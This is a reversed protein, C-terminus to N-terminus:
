PIFPKINEEKKLSLIINSISSHMEWHGPQSTYNYLWGSIHTYTTDTLIKSLTLNLPRGDKKYYHLDWHDRKGTETSDDRWFFVTARPNITQDDGFSIVRAKLTYKGPGVLPIKFDVPNSTGDNPMNYSIKGNWLNLNARERVEKQQVNEAQLASLNALVKDFITVFKKPKNIFYYNLNLDVQAKNFGHEEIIDLYNMNSDKDNFQRRILPNNLLGDAMYLDTLLGAMEDLSIINEPKEIREKKFCGAVIIVLTLTLLINTLKKM